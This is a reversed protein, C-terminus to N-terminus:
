WALWWEISLKWCNEVGELYIYYSSTYFFHLWHLHLIYDKINQLQLNRDPETKGRAFPFTHLWVPCRGELRLFWAVPVASFEPFYSPAWRGHARYAQPISSLMRQIILIEIFVYLGFLSHQVFDRWLRGLVLTVNDTYHCSTLWASM